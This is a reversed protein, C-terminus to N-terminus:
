TLWGTLSVFSAKRIVSLRNGNRYSDLSGLYLTMINESRM